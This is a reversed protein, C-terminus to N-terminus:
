GLNPFLQIAAVDGQKQEPSLVEPRVAKDTFRERILQRAREGVDALSLREPLDQGGNRLVDILAWSFMTMKEGPMAKAPDRAGSACLLATGRSAPLEEDVKQKAAQLPGSQFAAYASGSFCCDLILYRRLKAATERLRKALMGIPYGTLQERGESTSRLALFY